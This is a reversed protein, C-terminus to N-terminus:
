QFSHHQLQFEPPSSAAPTVEAPRTHTHVQVRRCMPSHKGSQGRGAMKMSYRLPPCPPRQKETHARTGGRPKRILSAPGTGGHTETM